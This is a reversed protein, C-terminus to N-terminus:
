FIPNVNLVKKKPAELSRYGFYKNNLTILLSSAVGWEEQV